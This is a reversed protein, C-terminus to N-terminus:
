TARSVYRVYLPMTLCKEKKGEKKSLTYRGKEIYIINIWLLEYEILTDWPTLRVKLWLKRTDAQSAPAAFLYCVWGNQAEELCRAEQRSQYPHGEFIHSFTLCSAPLRGTEMEVRRECRTPAAM